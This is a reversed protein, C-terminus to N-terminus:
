GLTTPFRPTRASHSLTVLKFIPLIGVFITSFAMAKIETIIVGMINHSIKHKFNSSKSNQLTKNTPIIDTQKKPLNLIQCTISQLTDYHEIKFYPTRPPFSL